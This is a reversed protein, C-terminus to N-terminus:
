FCYGVLPSQDNYRIALVDHSNKLFDNTGGHGYDADIELLPDCVSAHPHQM